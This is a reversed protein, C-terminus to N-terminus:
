LSYSSFEQYEQEQVRLNTGALGEILVSKDELFTFVAGIATGLPEMMAYAAMLLFYKRTPVGLRILSVSVAITEIWKHSVIAIVVPVAQALM